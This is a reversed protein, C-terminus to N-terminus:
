RQRAFVFDENRDFSRLRAEEAKTWTITRSNETASVRRPVHEYWAFRITPSLRAISARRQRGSGRGRLCPTILFHWYGTKTHRPHMTYLLRGQRASEFDQRAAPERMLSPTTPRENRTRPYGAEYLLQVLSTEMARSKRNRSGKGRREREGKRREKDVDRFECSFTM